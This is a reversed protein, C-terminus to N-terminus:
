LGNPCEGSQWYEGGNVIKLDIKDGIVDRILQEYGQMKALTSFDQHIEVVLMGDRENYGIGTFPVADHGNEQKPMADIAATLLDRAESYQATRQPNAPSTPERLLTLAEAKIRERDEDTTANNYEGELEILRTLDEAEEQVPEPELVTVGRAESGEDGQGSVLDFGVASVAVLLVAAAAIPLRKTNSAIM